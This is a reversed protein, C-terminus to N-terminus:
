LEGVDIAATGAVTYAPVSRFGLQDVMQSKLYNPM